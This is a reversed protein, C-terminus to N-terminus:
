DHLSGFVHYEFGHKQALFVAIGHKKSNEAGNKLHLFALEAVVEWLLCHERVIVFVAPVDSRQKTDM